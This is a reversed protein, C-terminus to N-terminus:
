RAHLHYHEPHTRMDSTIRIPGTCSKRVSSILADLMHRKEAPTPETTHRRLVVMPVGCTSCLAVWCVDDAYLWATRQEAVCLPCTM